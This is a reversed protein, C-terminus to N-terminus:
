PLVKARVTAPRSELTQISVERALTPKDNVPNVTISVTALASWAGSSDQARYTFFTPGNWNAVPTFTATAGVLSVSGVTTDPKSVIQFITPAPSDVDTATLVVSGSFDENITLAKNQAVPADNIPNVVISIIATDTAGARDTVKYTMSTTGSWNAPPTYTVIRGSITATGAGPQSVISFTHTDGEFSLDVDSVALTVTGQTDEDVTLNVDSVNPVDNVATVTITVTATNSAAGAADIAQYTLTTTGNWNAPPTYNLKNGGISASGKAPASIIRFTHSDGADADSATLTLIGSKDEQLSLTANSVTPARNAPGANNLGAYHLPVTGAAPQSFPSLQGTGKECYFTGMSTKPTTYEYQTNNHVVREATVEGNVKTMVNNECIWYEVRAGGPCSASYSQYNLWTAYSLNFGCSAAQVATASVFAIAGLTNRLVKRYDRKIMLLM